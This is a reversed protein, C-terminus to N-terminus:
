AEDGFGIYCSMRQRHPRRDEWLKTVHATIEEMRTLVHGLEQRVSANDRSAPFSIDVATDGALLYCAYEITLLREAFVQCVGPWDVVEYIPLFWSARKLLKNFQKFVPILSARAQHERHETSDLYKEMHRFWKEHWTELKYRRREGM